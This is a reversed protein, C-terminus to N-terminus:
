SSSVDARTTIESHRFAQPLTNSCVVTAFARCQFCSSHSIRNEFCGLSSQGFCYCKIHIRIRDMRLKVHIRDDRHHQETGTNEITNSHSKKIDILSKCFRVVEAGLKWRVITRLLKSMVKIDRDIVVSLRIAADAATISLVTPHETNAIEVLSPILRTLEVTNQEFRTLPTSKMSMTTTTADKADEVHLKMTSATTMAQKM